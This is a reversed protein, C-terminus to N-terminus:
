SQEEFLGIQRFRSPLEKPTPLETRRNIGTLAAFGQRSSLQASVPAWGAGDLEMWLTLLSHRAFVADLGYALNGLLATYLLWTRKMHVPMKPLVIVPIRADSPLAQLCQAVRSNGVTQYHSGRQIVLPPHCLAMLQLAEPELAEPKTLAPIQAALVKMTSPPVDAPAKLRERKIWRMQSKDFDIRSM